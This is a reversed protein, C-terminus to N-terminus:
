NGAGSGPRGAGTLSGANGGTFPAAGDADTPAGGLENGTVPAAGTVPVANSRPGAAGCPPAPSSQMLANTGKRSSASFRPLSILAALSRCADGSSAQLSIPLKPWDSILIILYTSDWAAFHPIGGCIASWSFFPWLFVSLMCFFTQVTACCCCCFPGAPGLRRSTSPEEADSGSSVSVLFPPLVKSVRFPLTRARHGPDSSCQQRGRQQRSRCSPRCERAAITSARDAARGDRGASRTRAIASATSTTPPAPRRPCGYCEGM